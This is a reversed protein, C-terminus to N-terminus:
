LGYAIGVRLRKPYAVGHQVRTGQYFHTLIDRYSWGQKALGYAGWQSMGLGHGNGSGYFTFAAAARTPAAAPLTAAFAAVIVVFAIRRM